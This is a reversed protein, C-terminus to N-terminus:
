DEAHDEKRENNWERTAGSQTTHPGTKYGCVECVVYFKEPVKVTVKRVGSDMGCVRCHKLETRRPRGGYNM